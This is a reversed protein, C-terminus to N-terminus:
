KNSTTYTAVTEAAKLTQESEAFSDLFPDPLEGNFAKLLEDPLPEFFSGPIEYGEEIPGLGVPRPEKRPKPLPVIQAVPVNRRCIQVTEGAEVASLYESLKAKAEHINIAIMVM